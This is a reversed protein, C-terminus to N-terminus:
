KKPIAWQFCVAGLTNGITVFLLFLLIPGLQGISSIGLACYFMDAISHEFGSLIFVPVCLIIGLYRGFNQTNKYIDVAIFMLVGCCIGLIVAKLPSILLKAEVLATAAAAVEPRTLRVMIGCLICGCLNGLWILACDIWTKNVVVYGIKGTFLNLGFACITLLGVAFLFAGLMRNACSLYVTGGIGIMFGATIGDRFIALKKM